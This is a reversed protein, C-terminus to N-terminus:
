WFQSSPKLSFIVECFDPVGFFLCAAELRFFTQNKCVDELTKATINCVNDIMQMRIYLAGICFFLFFVYTKPIGTFVGYGLM